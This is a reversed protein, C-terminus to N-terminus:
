YFPVLAKFLKRIQLLFILHQVDPDIQPAFTRERLDAQLQAYEAANLYEGDIPSRGSLIIETRLIEEPTDEPPPLAVSPSIRFIGFLDFLLILAFYKYNMLYKKELKM